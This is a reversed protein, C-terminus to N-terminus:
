KFIYIKNRLIIMKDDITLQTFTRECKLVSM